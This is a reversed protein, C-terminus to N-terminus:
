ILIAMGICTFGILFLILILFCSERRSYDGDYMDRPAFHYAGGLDFWYDRGDVKGDHNIDKNWKFM